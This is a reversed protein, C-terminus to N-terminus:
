FHSRCFLFLCLIIILVFLSLYLFLCPLTGSLGNPDNNSVRLIAAEDNDAIKAIGDLSVIRINAIVTFTYTGAYTPRFLTVLKKRSRAPIFGHPENCFLAHPSIGTEVPVPPILDVIDDFGAKGFAMPEPTFETKYKLFYEIDSDSVNEIFLPQTEDTNVLRVELKREPPDFLIAGYDAAAVIKVSLIQLTTAPTVLGPQRADVVRSPTGGVPFSKVKLKYVYEQAVKPTFTFTLQVSMNGRLFGSMPYVTFSDDPIDGLACIFKLPLRSTNKITFKKTTTLGVSTPAMYFLGQFGNPIGKNVSQGGPILALDLGSTATTTRLRAYASDTRPPMVASVTTVAEDIDVFRLCPLGGTAELLLKPGTSGNFITRLLQTCKGERDPTFRICVLVFNEAEVEGAVPKVSFVGDTCTSFEQQTGSARGDEWGLEFKFIAPLNSTNRLMVTQFIEGGIYTCPFILKGARIAGSVLSGSALLQGTAFTHGISRVSLCWPPTLTSDNTLRFTRQNKFYVFCEIDSVYNRNSQKPNFTIKFRVSGSPSIDEVSPTVVFAPAFFDVASQANSTKSPSVVSLTDEIESEPAGRVRPIVWNLMVKGRTRNTITVYKAESTMGIGCFGFDVNTFSLTIDQVSPDIDDIFLEQAVATDVRSAEGSRTLPQGHSTVSFARTGDPGVRAFMESMGHHKVIMDMEDPNLAGSIGEPNYPDLLGRVKRNRYAQIHAHRLPAPRIEKIEGKARIFGTGMCDYFLPLADSILIFFRKYYNIPLKPQFLLKVAIESGAPIRGQRPQMRFVSEEDGDISFHTDRASNNRLYFLRTSSFGIEIDRFNLSNNPSGSLNDEIPRGTEKRLSVVPPMSTGTVVLTTYCNGPTKFTYQDNSYCGMALAHYHVFIQIESHPPIIGSRPSIDFVEDVDKEHRICSFEAPVVSNNRLVIDKKTKHVPTGSLVEGYHVEADSLCIYAYKGIASLKIFIMPDPIIAYVGEGVYCVAQSV